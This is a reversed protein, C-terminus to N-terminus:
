NDNKYGRGPTYPAGSKILKEELQKIDVNFIAEAKQKAKNIKVKAIAYSDKHTKTTESTSYKQEYSMIGIRAAPSKPQSIDLKNKVPDGYLFVNLAKLKTEIDSVSKSLEQYPLESRKIASKIYKLKSNSEGIIRQCAQLDAELKSVSKQFAVKATRDKAPMVTNDLAAVEFSVPNVLSTTEGSHYLDMEVTYTGPEVLTGEDVAAWPNYFSSKNLNIPDQLTYRLDWHFRQLGKKPTKFEKKIVQGEKNKITFVLSPKEENM